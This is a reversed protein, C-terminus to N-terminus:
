SSSGSSNKKKKKHKKEKAPKDSSKGSSKDASKDPKATVPPKPPAIGTMLIQSSYTLNFGKASAGRNMWGRLLTRGLPMKFTFHAVGTGIGVPATAVRTWQAKDRNYRRLELTKAASVPSVAVTVSVAKGAFTKRPAARISVRPMVGVPVAESPVEDGFLTARYEGGILPTVVTSFTGDPAPTVTNVDTWKKTATSRSQIKVPFGAPAATGSLTVSRGYSIAPKGSKLTVTGAKQVLIEGKTEGKLGGRYSYNFPGSTTLVYSYSEGQKLTPSVFAGKQSYVVKDNGDANVFRVTDGLNALAVEPTPGTVTLNVGVQGTSAAYGAVPLMGFAILGLVFRKKGFRFLRV